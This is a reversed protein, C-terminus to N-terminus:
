KKLEVQYRKVPKACQTEFHKWYFDVTNNRSRDRFENIWPDSTCAGPAPSVTHCYIVLITGRIRTHM